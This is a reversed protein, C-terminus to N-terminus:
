DWRRWSFMFCPHICLLDYQCLIESINWYKTGELEGHIEKQEVNFGLSLLTNHYKM